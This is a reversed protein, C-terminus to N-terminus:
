LEHFIFKSISCVTNLYTTTYDVVCCVIYILHRWLNKPWTPSLVVYTDLPFLCKKALYIDDDSKGFIQVSGVFIPCLKLFYLIYKLFGFKWFYKDDFTPRRTWYEEILFFHHCIRGIKSVSFHGKLSTTWLKPLDSLSM